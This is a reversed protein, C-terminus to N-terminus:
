HVRAFPLFAVPFAHPVFAAVVVFHASGFVAALATGAAAAPFAVLDVAVVCALGAMALVAREVFRGAAHALSAVVLGLGTVTDAAAFDVPVTASAATGAVAADCELGFYTAPPRKETGAIEGAALVAAFAENAAAPSKATGFDALLFGLAPGARGTDALRGVLEVAEVFAADLIKSSHQGGALACATDAVAAVVEAEAEAEVEVCEVAVAVPNATGAVAAVAFADDLSQGAVASGFDELTAEDTHVAARQGISRLIGLCAAAEGCAVGLDLNEHHNEPAAAIGGAAVNDAASAGRVAHRALNSVVPRRREELITL